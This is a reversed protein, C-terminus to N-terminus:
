CSLLRFSEEKRMGPKDDGHDNETVDEGDPSILRMQKQSRGQCQSKQSLDESRESNVLTYNPSERVQNCCSRGPNPQSWIKTYTPSFAEDAQAMKEESVYSGWSWRPRGHRWWKELHCVDDDEGCQLSPRRQRRRRRGHRWRWRSSTVEHARRGAEAWVDTM